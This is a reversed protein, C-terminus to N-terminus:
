PDVLNAIFEVVTVTTAYYEKIQHLGTGVSEGHAVKHRIAVLSNIHEKKEDVLFTEAARGWSASFAGLLECIKGTTPNTWYSLEKSIFSAIEPASRRIALDELLAVIARELYGSVLV